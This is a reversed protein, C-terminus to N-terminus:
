AGFSTGEPSLPKQRLHVILPWRMTRARTPEGWVDAIAVAHAEVPDHGTAARCRATASLSGLYGLLQPLTWEATLWLSPAPLAPFPWAYDAYGADVEARESPWYPAIETRFAEAAPELDDSFVMDQYTWAALVGAPRLVRECEAFFRSRDFWHLAQAVAVLGVSRDALASAEGPEVALSVNADTERAWHQEIQAASPDTAHVHAFRESLGRTAQGSGCGPEWVKATAPVVATIADFLVDPYTPRWHAYAGAVQSFHDKFTAM